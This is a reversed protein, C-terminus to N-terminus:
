FSDTLVFIKFFFRHLRGLTSLLKALYMVRALDSVACSCILVLEYDRGGQPSSDAMFWHVYRERKIFNAEHRLQSKKMLAVDLLFSWRSIQSESPLTFKAMLEMIPKQLTQPLVLKIANEMVERMNGHQKLLGAQVLAKIVIISRYAPM